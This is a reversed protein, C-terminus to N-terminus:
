RAEGRGIDHCEQAIHATERAFAHGMNGEFRGAMAERLKAVFPHAHAGSGEGIEAAIVKIVVARHFGIVFGLHAQEVFHDFVFADRDDMRMPIIVGPGGLGDFVRAFAPKIHARHTLAAIKQAQDFALCAGKAM